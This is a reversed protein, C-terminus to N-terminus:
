KVTGDDAAPAFAKALEICHEKEEGDANAAMGAFVGGMLTTTARQADHMADSCWKGAAADVEESSEDLDSAYEMLAEAQYPAIGVNALTNAIRRLGIAVGQMRGAAKHLADLKDVV